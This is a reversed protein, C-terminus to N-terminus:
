MLFTMWDNVIMIESFSKLLKTVFAILIFIKFDNFFEKSNKKKFYMMVTIAIM